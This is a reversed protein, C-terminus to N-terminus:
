TGQKVWHIEQATLKGIRLSRMSTPMLARSESLPIRGGMVEALKQPFLPQKDPDAYGDPYLPQNTSPNYKDTAGVTHLFEHTIVLNNRGEFQRSAYANVVGILGKKLGLSHKLVSHREPDHYLVFMRADPPPGDFDDHRFAWLRLQLSWLMIALPNGSEPPAPPLSEVVPGLKVTVPQSISLHYRKAESSLFESIPLYARNSLSSIYREAQQSGDGNIPYVAVWLTENWDTTRIHTLWTQAAVIFLVLLLISIRLTRFLGGSRM